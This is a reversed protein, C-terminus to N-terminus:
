IRLILSFPGEPVPLWNPMLTQAPPDHQIYITLSQMQLSSNAAAESNTGDTFRDARVTWFTLSHPVTIPTVGQPLAGQFGSPVLAYTGPTDSPISTHFVDGFVDLSLISYHATTAPITLVQPGQSLDLHFQAYLTDDNPAVV